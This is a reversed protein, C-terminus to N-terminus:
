FSEENLLRTLAQADVRRMPKGDVPSVPAQRLGNVPFVTAEIIAAQHEFRYAAFSAAQDRGFKLRREFLRFPIRQEELFLAVAEIQDWFLHLNVATHEAATGSLVPGVLRPSFESLITMASLAAQRLSTLLTTHADGGFLRLHDAVAADIETNNPLAGQTSLSLREAAKIKALRFDQIGQEVIIRAAEQALRARERDINHSAKKGM